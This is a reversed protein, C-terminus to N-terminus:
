YSCEPIERYGPFMAKLSEIEKLEEETLPTEFGRPTRKKKQSQIIAYKKDEPHKLELGEHSSEKKLM